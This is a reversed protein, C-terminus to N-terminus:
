VAEKVCGGCVWAGDIRRRGLISKRKHCASCHFTNTPGKSARAAQDRAFSESDYRITM